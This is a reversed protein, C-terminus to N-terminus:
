FAGLNGICFGYTDCLASSSTEFAAGRGWKEGKIIHEEFM